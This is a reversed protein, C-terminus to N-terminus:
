PRMGEFAYYSGNQIICVYPTNDRMNAAHPPSNKWLTVVEKYDPAEAINETARTWHSYPVTHGNVRSYFADHSFNTTIEQARLTAFACTETSAKVPTLGLSARYENVGNLIYSTTESLPPNQESPPITPVQPPVTPNIATQTTAATHAGLVQNNYNKIDTFALIYNVLFSFFTDQNAPRAASVTKTSFVTLIIISFLIYSLRRGM